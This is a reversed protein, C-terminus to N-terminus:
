SVSIIIIMRSALIKMLQSPILKELLLLFKILREGTKIPKTLGGTAFFSFPDILKLKIDIINKYEKLLKQLNKVNVFMAKGIGQDGEQPDSNMGHFEFNYRFTTNEEHFLKYIPYSFFSVYPEIFIIKGGPKTVRICESLAIYPRNLHHIMDVGFVFDFSGDIYPLNEADIRSSIESSQEWDLYDTRLIELNTLFNKSIGAGAGIELIEKGSKIISYLYGYLNKYYTKQTISNSNATQQRLKIRYDNSM